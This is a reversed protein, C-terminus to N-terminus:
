YNNIIKSKFFSSFVPQIPIGTANQGYIMLTLTLGITIRLQQSLTYSFLSTKCPFLEAAKQLELDQHQKIITGSFAAERHQFSPYYLDAPVMTLLVM